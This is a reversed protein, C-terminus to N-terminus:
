SEAVNRGLTEGRNADLAHAYLHCAVWHDKEVELLPPDVNQCIPMAFKCRETFKCGVPARLLDPPTGPISVLRTRQAKVGPFANLLGQTYPHLPNKFIAFIDGREAIKGGYMIAVKECTEAIISLDHSIIILSLNLREKLQRLLQLVQAQVIVDLATSPEDAILLNPNCSLAMAIMARQRMGGSFEYPYHSLRAPDVGVLQFLKGARELAEQTEVNPEHLQIAEVIQDSVKIVPNFANMAGQFVLSIGTWRVGEKLEAETSKVIDIGKFLIRGGVIMGNPPLVRLLSTAITTKGCGSEGALGLAQGKEVVFSVGDVAKVFGRQIKYYTKLDEVQLTPM